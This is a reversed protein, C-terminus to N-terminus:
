FSPAVRRQFVKLIHLRKCVIGAHSPRVSLFVSLCRTVAYGASHMRTARHFHLDRPLLEWLALYTANQTTKRLM